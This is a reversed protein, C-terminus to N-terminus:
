AMIKVRKVQNQKRMGGPVSQIRRAQSLGELLHTCSEFDGSEGKIGPLASGTGEHVTEVM